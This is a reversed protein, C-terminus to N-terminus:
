TRPAVARLLKRLVLTLNFVCPHALQRKLINERGRPHCRRMGGPEYCRAYTQEVLEGRRKLLKM